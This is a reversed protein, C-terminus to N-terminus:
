GVHSFMIVSVRDNAQSDFIFNLVPGTLIQGSLWYAYSIGDSVTPEGLLTRINHRTSTHDIGNYHFVINGGRNTYDVQISAIMGSSNVGVFIGSAFRYTRWLEHNGTGTFHGFQHRVTDFRVGMMNAINVRQPPLPDANGGMFRTLMTAAEARTATGRPAITTPTRGQVFGHYNAWTLANVAWSQIEGRDTFSNWQPGQRVTTDRNTMRDAFRFLMTAFQQRDVNALPAFHYETIGEVIGNHYAWSVYPAFWQGTPVDQFPTTRSDSANAARGHHIRFLTAV